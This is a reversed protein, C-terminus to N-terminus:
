GHGAEHLEDLLRRAVVLDTTEFGEVFRAYPAALIERAEDARGQRQLLRALSSASRLEWALAGQRQALDLSQHFHNEPEASDRQSALLLVEGKIRLAEPVCWYYDNEKARRVAEDATALAEDVEGASALVDALQALFATYYMYFRTERLEAVSRRLLQEGTATDGRAAYLQGEFGLGAAHYGRLGHNGAHTKLQNITQEAMQLDGIWLPVRCGATTLAYPMTFPHSTEEAEVLVDRTLKLSQEPFGQLWLIQAFLVRANMWPDYGYRVLHARRVEPSNECSAREARSRAEAYEGVWLLSSTLLCDATTLALPNSIKTAIADVERSLALASSFDASMRNFIVLGVVARLQCDLDDFAKGLENARVLAAHAKDTLGQTLMTAYGLALQLTAEEPTGLREPPLVDLAAAMWGRCESLLAMEIWTPASAAALAVGIVADGAPSFAWALAARINDIEAPYAETSANDAQDSTASGLLDRFFLAHRRKIATLEGSESLKEFAYARTTELLRLRPEPVRGEAVVLSKEVLEAVDGFIAGELEAQDGAIAAAGALTFGGAFVALRRLIMREREALLGYSWDLTARLTQHRPLATRQGGTLLQLSNHLGAALEEVGLVATRAAALEVALPIGDLRRCVAAVTALVRRGPVFHPNVARAREVFLRVAGYRLLDDAGDADAAPVTLPPVSYVWEGEAKLPERSTAIVSAAANAHLLAEAMMAAADILHECNDLVLLLQKGRLANAVQKASVPGGALELAVAGAVTVSVLGAEALPALEVIWVGDAFRPLLQRAAAFALRTKGIGGAGALTVLRHSAALGLIEDLEADRGILESVPEPLNTPPRSPTFAPLPPVAAAQANPRAAITRIEGTFQYGRGAITRILDRDAGFARRLASIQAHLNNEEVIRDPWVRNMLADTSVVAGSAEILAMLVDFARGGLELPRGEALVERRHPVIRFRGFEIAAPTEAPDM